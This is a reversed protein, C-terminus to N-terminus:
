EGGMKLFCDLDDFEGSEFDDFFGVECGFVDFELYEM